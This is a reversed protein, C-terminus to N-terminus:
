IHLRQVSHSMLDLFFFKIDLTLNYSLLIKSEMYMYEMYM